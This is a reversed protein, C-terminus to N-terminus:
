LIDAHDLHARERDALSEHRYWLVAQGDHAPLKRSGDLASDLGLLKPQLLLDIGNAFVRLSNAGIDALEFAHLADVLMELPDFVSDLQITTDELKADTSLDNSLFFSAALTLDCCGFCEM